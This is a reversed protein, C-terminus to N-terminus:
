SSKQFSIKQQTQRQAFVADTQAAVFELFGHVRPLADALDLGSSLIARCEHASDAFGLASMGEALTGLLRTREEERPAPPADRLLDIASRAEGLFDNVIASMAETGLADALM